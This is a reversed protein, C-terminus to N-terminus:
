SFLAVKEAQTLRRLSALPDSASIAKRIIGSAIVASGLSPEPSAELIAQALSEPSPQTRPMSPREAVMEMVPQLPAPSPEIARAITEQLTPALEEIRSPPAAKNPSTAAATAPALEEVTPLESEPAVTEPAAATTEAHPTATAAIQGEQAEEDDMPDVVAMEMAILDLVAEDHADAAEASM